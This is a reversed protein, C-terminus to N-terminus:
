EPIAVSLVHDSHVEFRAVWNGLGSIRATGGALDVQLRLSKPSVRLGTRNAKLVAEKLSWFLVLKEDSDMDVDQILHMEEPHLMFRYLSEPRPRIRELDVGVAGTSLVAAAYPGSHSISLSLRTGPLLLSGDEHVELQVAEPATGLREGLLTRAAYRGLSFARRREQSGFSEWRMREQLSMVREGLRILEPTSALKRLAIHPPLQM